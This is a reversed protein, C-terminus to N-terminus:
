PLLPFTPLFALLKYFVWVPMMDPIDTPYLFYLAPFWLPMLSGLIEFALGVYRPIIHLGHPETFAWFCFSWLAWKFVIEESSKGIIERHNRGGGWGGRCVCVLSETTWVASGEPTGAQASPWSHGSCFHGIGGKWLAGSSEQLQLACFSDVSIDYIFLMIQVWFWLTKAVGTM